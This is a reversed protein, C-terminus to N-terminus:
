DIGFIMKLDLYDLAARIKPALWFLRWTDFAEWIEYDWVEVVWNTLVVVWWGSWPDDLIEIVTYALPPGM